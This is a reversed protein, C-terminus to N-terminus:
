SLMGISPRHLRCPPVPRPTRRPGGCAAVAGGEDDTSPAIMAALEVEEMATLTHLRDNLVTVTVDLRAAATVVDHECLAAGVADLDPLLWRATAEIVQLENDACLSVCPAGAMIHHVEHALTCRQEVRGLDHALEISPAGNVWVAQGWRDTMARIHVKVHPLNRALYQWPDTDVSM